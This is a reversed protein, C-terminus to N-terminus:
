DQCRLAEFEEICASLEESGDFCKRITKQLEIVGELFTEMEHLEDIINADGAIVGSSVRARMRRVMGVYPDNTYSPNNISYSM